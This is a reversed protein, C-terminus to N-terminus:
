HGHRTVARLFVGIGDIVNLTGNGAARLWTAAEVPDKVMVLLLAGIAALGVLKPLVGSGYGYGYRAM